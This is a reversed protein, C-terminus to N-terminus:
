FVAPVIQQRNVDVVGYTNLRLSPIVPLSAFSLTMFPDIDRSVGLGYVLEKLQELKRDTEEVSEASMLGGVPLALEGLIEGDKVLVLGGRLQRVRNGALALDADNTGVMILNHSDHAISSAVAGAKLGYGSLYGLGIRGSGGHREAVAMKLIGEGLGEEWPVIEETTLLEGPTLRIVRRKMGPRGTLELDAATLEKMHFSDFVRSWRGAQAADGATQDDGVMEKVTKGNEATLAGDKYVQEVRFQELDSLVVLDALYGPAVAGRNRLGFYQATHLTAMRIAHIPDAGGKVAERMIFDMHGGRLLDGPHKDDTALMCRQYYPEGFLPLLAKLNQAATGQRVMIWQGRSLKEVAEDIQSCEHDSQVGAAAYANLERGTLLPAHGDVVGGAALANEVKRLIKEDGLVTGYSNMMEALGLVRGNAYYRELDEAELVAGSEDLGTAPVCSPLMVFVDLDLNETAHLMYDIGECGAVNAIEHPDTVVATTGHPLVAGAFESPAVMSSELHIHGDIFGPCLIKGALDVEREGEYGTGVGVIFGGDVAVDATELRNTFVNVVRANKLVLEAKERGAACAIRRKMQRIQDMM